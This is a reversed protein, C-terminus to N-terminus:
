GRSDRRVRRQEARRSRARNVLESLQWTEEASLEDHEILFHIMSTIRTLISEHATPRGKSKGGARRAPPLPLGGHRGLPLWLPNGRCLDRDKVKPWAHYLEVACPNKKVRIFAGYFARTLMKRFEGRQADVESICSSFLKLNRTKQIRLLGKAVMRDM